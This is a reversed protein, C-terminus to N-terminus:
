VELHESRQFKVWGATSKLWVGVVDENRIGEVLYLSILCIGFELIM